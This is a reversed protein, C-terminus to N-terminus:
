HHIKAIEADADLAMYLFSWNTSKGVVELEQLHIDFAIRCVYRTFVARLVVDNDCSQLVSGVCARLFLLSKQSLCTFDFVKLVAISLSFNSILYALLRALNYIKRTQLCPFFLSLLASIFVMSRVEYEDLLKISDWLSLQFTFKFSSREECLKRGVVAYFPNFVSEQGCCDVLVRVIEREASGKLNLKLLRELASDPSDAGMLAVFVSRRVATNMRQKRALELLQAEESRITLGGALEQENSTAASTNRQDESSIGTWTSGVLWWRGRSQINMFDEWGARVTRDGVESAKQTGLKSLWKKLTTGRELLQEHSQRKRNNKIDMIIELMVQLRMSISTEGDNGEHPERSVVASKKKSALEITAGFDKARKQIVSIADKLGAPDDSRLQWGTFKIIVLILEVDSELFRRSLLTAIDLILKSSVINFIYIYSLLHVLNRAENIDYEKAGDDTAVEEKLSTPLNLISQLRHSIKEAVYAGVSHGVYIHLASILGAYVMIINQALQKTQACMELVCAILVGNVHGKGHNDYSCIPPRCFIFVFLSMQVFVTVM